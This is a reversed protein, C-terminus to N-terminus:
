SNAGIFDSFSAAGILVWEDDNTVWSYGETAEAEKLLFTKAKSIDRRHYPEIDLYEIPIAFIQHGSGFEVGFVPIVKRKIAERKTLTLWAREVTIQPAQTEKAELLISNSRVDGKQSGNGSGPTRKGGSKRAWEIEFKEWAKM